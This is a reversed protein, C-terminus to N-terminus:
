DLTKMAKRLGPLVRAKQAADPSEQVAVYFAQLFAGLNHRQALTTQTLPPGKQRRAALADFWSEWDAATWGDRRALYFAPAMLREAEGYRYAHEGAPLVQAAIAALMADGQARQLQPNLSLQLMLDAGHAVGHRWGDRADYGRYDRVGALYRTGHDVLEARQADTLFPQLRDVRAVEALALAAFPQRVGAADAPEALMALLRARIAQLAPPALQRGRMWASLGEFALGDRLVPDPDALCDVLGLALAERRAPDEPAPWRAAKMAQLSAATEGSPPCAAGATPAVGGLAMLVLIRVGRDVVMRRMFGVRHSRPPGARAGLEQGALDNLREHAAPLIERKM